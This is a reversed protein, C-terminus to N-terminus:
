WASCVSKTVRICGPEPARRDQRFGLRGAFSRMEGNEALVDGFLTTIGAARAQTELTAVLLRGLGRRRWGDAVVIALEAEDPAATAYRAEGIIGATEGVPEAIWALHKRQDIATLNTLLREPLETLPSHFRCRRSGISLGKVFHQFAEADDAVLPRIIIRDGDPLYAIGQCIVSPYAM